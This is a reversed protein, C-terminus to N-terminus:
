SLAKQALATPKSSPKTQNHNHNHNVSLVVGRSRRVGSVLTPPQPGLGRPQAEIRDRARTRCSRNVGVGLLDPISEAPKSRPQDRM